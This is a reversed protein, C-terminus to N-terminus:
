PTTEQIRCSDCRKDNPGIGPCSAYDAQLVGQFHGWDDPNGVYIRDGCVPCDWAQFQGINALMALEVLDAETLDSSNFWEILDDATQAVDGASEDLMETLALKAADFTM